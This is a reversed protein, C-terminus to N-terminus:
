EIVINAWKESNVIGIYPIKTGDQLDVADYIWREPHTPHRRLETLRCKHKTGIFVVDVIDGVKWKPKKMEKPAIDENKKRM